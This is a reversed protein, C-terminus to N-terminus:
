RGGRRSSDTHGLAKKLFMTWRKQDAADQRQAEAELDVPELQELANLARDIGIISEALEEGEEYSVENDEIQGLRETRERRLNRKAQDVREREGPPVTERRKIEFVFSQLDLVEGQIDIAEPLQVGVTSGDRGVRELLQKRQYEKM